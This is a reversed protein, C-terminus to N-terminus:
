SYMMAAKLAQARAAGEKAMGLPARGPSICISDSYKEINLEFTCAPRLMAADGTHSKLLATM